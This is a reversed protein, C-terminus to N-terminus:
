KSSKGEVHYCSLKYNTKDLTSEYGNCYIPAFTVTYGGFTKIELKGSLVTEGPILERKTVVPRQRKEKYQNLYRVCSISINYNDDRSVFLEDIDDWFVDDLNEYKIDSHGSIVFNDGPINEWLLSDLKRKNM